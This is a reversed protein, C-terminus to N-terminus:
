GKESSADTYIVGQSLTLNNVSWKLEELAEVSLKIEEEYKMNLRQREILDQQLARIQMSAISIAILTAQLKGIM